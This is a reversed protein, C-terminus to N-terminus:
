LAKQPLLANKVVRTDCMGDHLSRKQNDFAALLFGLGLTLFSLLTSFARAIALGLGVPRGDATVVRLDLVLKGPTASFAATLVVTYVLWVVLPLPMPMPFVFSLLLNLVGVLVLDMAFAVGRIWFGAYVDGVVTSLVLVGERLREFFFPKCNACVPREGFILLDGQSYMRGCKCCAEMDAPLEGVTGANQAYGWPQWDSMGQRWVLTAANVQGTQVLQELREQSVPGVTRGENLFYWQM